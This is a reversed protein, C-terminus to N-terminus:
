LIGLPLCYFLQSEISIPKIEDGGYFIVGALFNEKSERSLELM